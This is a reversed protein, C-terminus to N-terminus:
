SAAITISQIAESRRVRADTRRYALIVLQAQQAAVQDLSKVVIGSGGRDGILYGANFDGFLVPTATAALAPMSGSYFVPFGHLYDQGNERTFVPEYLNAQKQAKRLAVGTSRNMLFSAGPFYVSNLTAQVDFTADLLNSAANTVGTVGAGVNGLLGQPEGTGSGSVFKGEEFVAIDTLLDQVIFEQFASVDQLLEWSASTKLGIMNSSLTFQGITPNSDVFTSPSAGSEPKIAAAGYGTKVPVKIDMTTPLVRAIQRVAMEPPALPVIQGDVESPVAFGGTAGSGEYLAASVKLGGSALWEKFAGIYDHSYTKREESIAGEANDRFFQADSAAFLSRNRLEASVVNNKHLAEVDAERRPSRSSGGYLPHSKMASLLTSQSNKEAVRKDLDLLQEQTSAIIFKETETNERNADKAAHILADSYNLLEVRKKLIDALQM